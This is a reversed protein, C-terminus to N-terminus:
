SGSLRWCPPVTRQIIGDLDHVGATFRCRNSTDLASLYGELVGQFPKGDVYLLSEFGHAGGSGTDGFNFLGVVECGDKQEPIHVTKELWLYRDRGIFLDGINFPDGCVEAPAQTYHADVSLQGEMSAFPAVCQNDFYRRAGLENVRRMLKDKTFFM